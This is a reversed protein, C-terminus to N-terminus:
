HELQVKVLWESERTGAAHAPKKTHVDEVKRERTRGGWTRTDGEERTGKGTTKLPQLNEVSLVGREQVKKGRRQQILVSNQTKRKAGRQAKPSPDENQDHIKM